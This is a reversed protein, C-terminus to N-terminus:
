QYNPRPYMPHAQRVPTQWALCSTKWAPTVNSPLGSPNSLVHTIDEVLCRSYYVTLAANGLCTFAARTSGPQERASEEGQSNHLVLKPPTSIWCFLLLWWTHPLTIFNLKIKLLGGPLVHFVFVFTSSSGIATARRGHHCLLWPSAVHAECVDSEKYRNVVLSSGSCECTYPHKKKDPVSPSYASPLAQIGVLQRM